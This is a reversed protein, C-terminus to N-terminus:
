LSSPDAFVIARRRIDIAHERIRSVSADERPHHDGVLAIRLVGSLKVCLDSAYLQHARQKIDRGRATTQLRYSTGSRSPSPNGRISEGTTGAGRFM